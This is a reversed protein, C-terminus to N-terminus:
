FCNTSDLVFIRYSHMFSIGLFTKYPLYILADDSIYYEILRNRSKIVGYFFVQIDHNVVYLVVSQFLVFVTNTLVLWM